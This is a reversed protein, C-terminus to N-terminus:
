DRMGFRPIRRVGLWALGAVGLWVMLAPGARLGLLLAGIVSDLAAKVGDAFAVRLRSAISLPGELGAKREEKIDITVAAYTVRRGINTREADLREIDLRVRTIEREVELVDSLRGTKERLIEALRRETARANALRADLDIVQDTIDDSHQADEVVQGLQRLGALAENLRAGPVRVTGHLSRAMGETSIVTLQDVFGGLDGVIREVASRMSAFDRTVLSLSATRILMPRQREALAEGPGAVAQPQSDRVRRRAANPEAELAVSRGQAGGLFPTACIFLISLVVAVLVMAAATAIAVHWPRSFWSLTKTETAVRTPRARLTPPPDEVEWVATERSVSRLEAVVNRCADCAAIHAEIRDADGRGAEGDFYAMLEEPTPSHDTAAM